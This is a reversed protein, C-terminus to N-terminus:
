ELLCDYYDVHAGNVYTDDRLLRCLVAASDMPDVLQKQFYPKLTADLADCQRLISTMETELPGPAYNLIRMEAIDQQAGHADDDHSGSRELAMAAHYSDRAAKGASYLAMTPMSQIACLSSINVITTHVHHSQDDDEVTSARKSQETAWRLVRTSMWLSSTVNLDISQQFSSLSPTDTCLGVHGLSGANNIFILRCKSRPKEQQTATATVEKCQELIADLTADLTSLDSLDAMVQGLTLSLPSPAPLSHQAARDVSDDTTTAAPLSSLKMIENATEQLGSASRAVLVAHLQPCNSRDDLRDDGHHPRHKLRLEHDELFQRCLTVAIARGLGRSAGTVILCVKAYHLPMVASLSM